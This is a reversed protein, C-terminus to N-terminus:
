GKSLGTLSTHPQPLGAEIISRLQDLRDIRFDCAVSKLLVNQTPDLLVTLAGAARGSQPDFIYDGVMLVEHPAVQFQGAAWVIGQGSPKPDLPDDRSIILDFDDASIKDFNELSRLVAERRNRTIIGVPLGKRKIWAVVRQAGSNPRSAAAGDFEFRDLKEMARSRDRAPTISQVFELVPQDARCGLAAKISKFDLAGPQTLTGDFDFLVAKIRYESNPM